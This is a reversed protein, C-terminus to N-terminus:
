LLRWPDDVDVFIIMDEYKTLYEKDKKKESDRVEILPRSLEPIIIDVIKGEKTVGRTLYDYGNETAWNCVANVLGRHEKTTNSDHNICNLNIKKYPNLYKRIFDNTEKKM